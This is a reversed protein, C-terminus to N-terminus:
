DNGLSRWLYWAAHSRFPRFRRGLEILEEEVCVGYISAAASKLGHDRIPWVDPRHLGFLLVMQATWPGVGPLQILEQQFELDDALELPRFRGQLESEAVVKLTRVKRPSLGCARLDEEAAQFLQDASLGIQSTLRLRITKAARNSIQQGITARLLANYVGQPEAPFEPHQSILKSMAQDQTLVARVAVNM